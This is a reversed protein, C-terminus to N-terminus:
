NDMKNKYYTKMRSKAVSAKRNDKYLKRVYESSRLLTQFHRNNYQLSNLSAQSTIDVCEASNSILVQYNFFRTNEDGAKVKLIASNSINNLYAEDYCKFLQVKGFDITKHTEIDSKLLKYKSIPIGFYCYGDWVYRLRRYMVHIKTTLKKKVYPIMATPNRFIIGTQFIFQRSKILVDGEYSIIRSIAGFGFRMIYFLENRKILPYKKSVIDVFDRTSKVKGAKIKGLKTLEAIRQTRYKDLHIETYFPISVGVTHRFILQYASFDTEFPDFDKFAGHKRAEIYKNGTVRDLCMDSYYRAKSDFRFQTGNEIIDDVVAQVAYRFVKIIFDFKKGHSDMLSIDKVSLHVKDIPFTVFLDQLKFTHFSYANHMAM